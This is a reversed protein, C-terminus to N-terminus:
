SHSSTPDIQHASVYFNSSSEKSCPSAYKPFDLRSSNKGCEPYRIAHVDLKHPQSRRGDDVFLGMPLPGGRAHSHSAQACPFSLVVRCMAVKTASYCQQEIRHFCRYSNAPVCSPPLEPISRAETRARDGKRHASELSDSVLGMACLSTCM